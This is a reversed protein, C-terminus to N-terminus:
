PQPEPAKESSSGARLFAAVRGAGREADPRAGRVVELFFSELDMTPREVGPDRGVRERLYALVEKLTDPPLVPLRLRIANPEELFERVSGQARIRGNYLIAIRDCVDEVDALLHSSLIVTKGRRALTLM